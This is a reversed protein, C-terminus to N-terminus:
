LSDIIADGVESTTAPPGAPRLDATVRGSNLVKEIAAYVAVAEDKLGFTYELMAAVSGIAGLPNAKNQGAIDPASGHVPEYLGKTEGLSASPLMGISGALVAGEDSLIDGFMNETLLVDFRRPNLVLQMACNDVLLHDLEVDPYAESVETVVKRWLQSNELVNSKDVSTVKRRRNLALKFARHAIREIEARTYVMTNVATDGTIGRPTGYYIGGTLERVIIMDTGEVLHNKLPSSDILASYARVPRLNAYVGLAKRVGLLGAEPRQSPPMNDYEPLGVAGMLTADAALALRVTEEPLPSGTKQIAIGGLLGEALNLTHHYKEAIRRLVRVAECTVETGIGDGPLVLINLDM